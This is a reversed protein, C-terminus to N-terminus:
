WTTTSDTTETEGGNEWAEDVLRQWQCDVFEQNSYEGLGDMLRMVEVQATTLANIAPFYKKPQVGVRLFSEMRTVWGLVDEKSFSQLDRSSATSEKETKGPRAPSATRTASFNGRRM